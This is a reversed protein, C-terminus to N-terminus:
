RISNERKEKSFRERDKRKGRKEVRGKEKGERKSEVGSWRERKKEREGRVRERGVGGRERETHEM